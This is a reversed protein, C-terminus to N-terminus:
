TRKAMHCPRQYKLATASVLCDNGGSRAPSKERYPFRFAADSPVIQGFLEGAKEAGVPDEQSRQQREQEDQGDHDEDV